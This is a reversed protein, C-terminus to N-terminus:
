PDREQSMPGEGDAEPKTNLATWKERYDGEDKQWDVNPDIIRLTENLDPNAGSGGYDAATLLSYTLKLQIRM